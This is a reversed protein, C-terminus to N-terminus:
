EQKQDSQEILSSISEIGTSYSYLDAIKVSGQRKNKKAKDRIEESADRIYMSINPHMDEAQCGDTSGHRVAAAASLGM